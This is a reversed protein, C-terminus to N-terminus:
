VFGQGDPTRLKLNQDRESPLPAAAAEIGYLRAALAEAQSRSFRPRKAVHMIAIRRHPPAARRNTLQVAPPGPRLTRGPPRGSPSFRQFRDKAFTFHAPPISNPPSPGHKGDEVLRYGRGVPSRPPFPQPDTTQAGQADRQGVHQPRPFSRARPGA